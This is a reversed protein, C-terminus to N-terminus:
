PNFTYTFIEPKPGGRYGAAPATWTDKDKATNWAGKTEPAEAWIRMRRALVPRGDHILIAEEGPAFEWTLV